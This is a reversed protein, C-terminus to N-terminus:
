YVVAYTSEDQLFRPLLADVTRMGPDTVSPATEIVQFQDDIRAVLQRSGDATTCNAYSMILHAPYNRNFSLGSPGLVVSNITSSRAEMTIWVTSSLARAPVKLTHNGAKLTGGKPGIWGSAIAYPQPECLTFVVAPDERLVISAPDSPAALENTCGLVLTASILSAAVPLIRTLRNL